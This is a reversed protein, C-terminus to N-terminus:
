KSAKKKPPVDFLKKLVEEPKLPHLSLPKDQPKKKPKM